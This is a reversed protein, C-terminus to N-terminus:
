DCSRIKGDGLNLYNLCWTNFADIWFPCYHLLRECSFRFCRCALSCCDQISASLCSSCASQVSSFCRMEIDLVVWFGSLRRTDVIWFCSAVFGFFSNTVNSSNSLCIKVCMCVCVCIAHSSLSCVNGVQFDRLYLCAFGASHPKKLQTFYFM